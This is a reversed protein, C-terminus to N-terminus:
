LHAQHWASYGGDLSFVDDFGQENLYTAASQSSIGHYCVVILPLDMDADGIFHALNENNLNLAGDIHGAEYSAADRIDVIQLETSEAQMQILQNVSLHQFASM